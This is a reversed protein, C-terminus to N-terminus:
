TMMLLSRCMAVYCAVAQQVEQISVSEDITHAQRLCGPGFVIGPIGADRCIYGLDCCASFGRVLPKRGLVSSLSPVLAQVWPSTDDLHAAPVKRVIKFEMSLDPIETKAHWASRVLESYADDPDETPLHRRDLRVYCSDPIVNCAIGGSIITAELSAHGYLPDCQGHLITGLKNLHALVHAARYIANRGTEGQSSHAATGQVYMEVGVAGKHGICIQLCTPEGVIVFDALYGKEILTRTGLSGREEGGVLQLVITGPLQESGHTLQLFALLMSAVSAKADTSGRGHLYGGKIAPTFAGYQWAEQEGVPVTDFHSNLVITPKGTGTSAVVSVSSPGEVREAAVGFRALYEILYSALDRETEASFSPIKVMEGLLPVVTERDLMEKHM